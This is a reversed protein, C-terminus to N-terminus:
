IKKRSISKTVSKNRHPHPHTHQLNAQPVRFISQGHLFLKWGDVHSVGEEIRSKGDGGYQYTASYACM